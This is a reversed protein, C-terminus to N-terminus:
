RKLRRKTEPQKLFALGWRGKALWQGASRWTVTMTGALCPFRRGQFQAPAPPFSFFFHALPFAGENYSYFPSQTWIVKLLAPFLKWVNFVFYKQYRLRWKYTYEQAQTSVPPTPNCWFYIEVQEPDPLSLSFMISRKNAMAGVDEKKNNPWLGEPEQQGEVIVCLLIAPAADYKIFLCSCQNQNLGIM